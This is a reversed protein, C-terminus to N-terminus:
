SPSRGALRGQRLRNLIREMFLVVNLGGKESWRRLEERYNLRPVVELDGLGRDVLEFPQVQGERRLQVVHPGHLERIRGIVALAM